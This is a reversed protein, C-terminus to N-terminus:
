APPASVQLRYPGGCTQSADGSCDMNCDSAPAAAPVTNNVYSSACFCEDGYEVGALQTIRDTDHDSSSVPLSVTYGESACM